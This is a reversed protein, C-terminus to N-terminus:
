GSARYGFRGDTGFQYRWLRTRKHYVRQKAYPNARRPRVDGNGRRMRYHPQRQCITRRQCVPQVANDRCIGVGAADGHCLRASLCSRDTETDQEHHEERGPARLPNFGANPAGQHLWLYRRNIDLDSRCTDSPLRPPATKSLKAIIHIMISPVPFLRGTRIAWRGM